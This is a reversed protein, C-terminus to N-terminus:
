FIEEVIAKKLRPRFSFSGPGIHRKINNNNYNSNKSIKEKLKLIQKVM